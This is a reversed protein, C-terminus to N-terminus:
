FPGTVAARLTGPRLVAPGGTGLRSRDRRHRGAGRLRTTPRRLRRHAAQPAAPPGSVPAMGCVTCYGDEITGTCGPQTCAMATM